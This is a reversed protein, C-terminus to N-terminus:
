WASIIRMSSVCAQISAIAASQPKGRGAFRWRSADIASANQKGAQAKAPARRVRLASHACAGQLFDPQSHSSSKAL